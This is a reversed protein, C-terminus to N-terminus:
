MDWGIFTIGKHQFMALRPKEECTECWFEVRLGLGDRGPGNTADPPVSASTITNDALVHTVRTRPVYRHKGGEVYEYASNDSHYISVDGQHLNNGRCYPCINLWDRDLELPKLFDGDRM